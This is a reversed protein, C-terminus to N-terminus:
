NKALDEVDKAGLGNLRQAVAFIRDVLPAPHKGFAEADSDQLLREGSEDVICLVCLRARINRLNAERSKGRVEISSQEFADRETGTITRVWVTEGEGLEPAPVSERPLVRPQLLQERTLGM